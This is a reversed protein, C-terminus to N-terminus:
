TTFIGLTLHIGMLCIIIGARCQCEEHDGKLHFHYAISFITFEPTGWDSRVSIGLAKEM